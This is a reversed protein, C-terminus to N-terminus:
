ATRGEAPSAEEAKIISYKALLPGFIEYIVTTAIIVSLVYGGPGPFFSNIIMAMGLAVGAQPALGAGLYRRYIGPLGMVRAAAWVGSVKGLMRAIIYTGGLVAFMGTLPTELSAGALVFFILYLPADVKRLNEFFSFSERNFNVLAGSMVMSSLLVSVGLLHALGSNLLIFGLVYLLIESPRSIYGSFLSFIWGMATGLIFSGAVESLGYFLGQSIGEGGSLLSFFLAFIILGWVDSFAVVGLLTDTFRGKARLERVVMVVAPPATAPAVASLALSIFLDGTLLYVAAGTVLCATISQALSIYIVPRGIERLRQISFNQGLSFSIVSLAFTSILGSAELFAGSVVNLFVPGALVGLIMYSTVAPLRLRRLLGSLTLASLFIIGMSLLPHINM